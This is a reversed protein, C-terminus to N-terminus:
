ERAVEARGSDGPASRGAAALLARGRARVAERVRALAIRVGERPGHRDFHVYGDRLAPVVGRPLLLISVLLIAGVFVIAFESANISLWKRVWEIVVTGVVAGLLSERGGFSVWVVPITAFTLSFVGPSVYNGWTVYFVGSLGALAGSLTFAGLKLRRVDYGLMETRDEDERVAVLAYGLRGNALARLGLYVAVLTALVFWYFGAGSLSVSAGEVGLTFDAIGPIGNFGGLAVSGITWGSGATQGMFTHIVLTVVLTMIAVYVDRVDGYFMFYGLALASLTAAAVAAPLALTAGLPGGLNLSVLAHTYGAVGFFAVQGFSLIGAYGWILSLSLALLGFTLFLTFQSAAYAGRVLPQAVLLATGLAFALWFGRSNGLTNPGTLREALGDLSASKSV